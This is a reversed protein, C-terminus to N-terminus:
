RKMVDDCDVVDIMEVCLLRDNLLLLKLARRDDVAVGRSSLYDVSLRRIDPM